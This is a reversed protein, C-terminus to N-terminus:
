AGEQAPRSSATMELYVEELSRNEHRLERLTWGHRVVLEFLNTRLDMERPCELLCSCWAGQEIVEVARVHPIAQLCPELKDKPAKIQARVRNGGGLSRKLEEPTDAAMVRGANLILVRQCTREVEPLIHSCLLITHRHALQCLLDRVQQNQQPDLGLTPEDLILLDPNHVLADALGVRQRYGRSLRGILVRGMQHLGCREKSEAVAYSVRRGPVRKIRARFRLYEDVRMDPYLPVSEPLYGVRRRVDMSQMRVDFGAIRVDGATASLFGALIRMITTKGAGNPGLLGVVEGREVEFTIDDVATFDRYKKTLHTVSIM